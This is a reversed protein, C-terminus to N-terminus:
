RGKLLTQIEEDGLLFVKLWEPDDAIVAKALNPAVLQTQIMRSRVTDILGGEELVKFVVQRIKNHTVETVKELEPHNEAKRKSFSYFDADTVKLEFFLLKDRVVEVTFERVFSYCKCFSLFAVQRQCRLDGNVLIELQAPTLVSLRKKFEILMRKGTSSKGSGLEDVLEQDSRSSIDRAVLLMQDLRLTAGVLGLEYKLSNPVRLPPVSALTPEPTKEPAIVLAEFDLSEM